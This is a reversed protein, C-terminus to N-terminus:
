PLSLELDKAIMRAAQPHYFSRHKAFTDLALHRGNPQRYLERHFLYTPRLMHCKSLAGSSPDAINWADTSPPLNPQEISHPSMGMPWAFCSGNSDLKSMPQQHCTTPRTLLRYLLMHFHVRPTLIWCTWFSWQVYVIINSTCTSISSHKGKQHPGFQEWQDNNKNWTGTRWRCYTRYLTHLLRSTISNLPIRSLLLSPKTMSSPSQLCEPVIFGPISILRSWQSTHMHSMRRSIICSSLLGTRRLSPNGLLPKLIREYTSTSSQLVVLPRRSTTCCHMDKRTRFSRTRM